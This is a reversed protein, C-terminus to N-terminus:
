EDDDDDNKSDKKSGSSKKEDDGGESEVSLVTKLGQGDLTHTATKVNYPGDVDSDNFAVEVKSGAFIDVRGPMTISISVKGRKLAALQAKVAAQAEERTKYLRRDRLRPKGNGGDSIWEREGTEVNQFSATASQYSGRESGTATWDSVDAEVLRFTPAKGGGPLDGSGAKNFLAKGDKIAFTAGTRKALRTLFNADSEGSQDIHGIKLKALEPHVQASLKHKGAVKKVIEGVTTDHYSRSKGAKLDETFDAAKASVTMRRPAGTKTWGDSKFAGMYVPGPNAYGLYVKFKTGKPPARNRQGNALELEVADSKTGENDTVTISMLPSGSGLAGTIAVGGGPLAVGFPEPILGATIDQGEALIRVAPIM